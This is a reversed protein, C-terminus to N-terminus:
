ARCARAQQRDGRACRGRARQGVLGQRKTSDILLDVAREDKTQNLIEIARAASTRTRTAVLQSCPTSSRRAASRASRTPRRPQAGVLRRGQHGRAPVEGLKADGIENLVEVAARRAYENEDKLVELLHKITDPDRASSSM